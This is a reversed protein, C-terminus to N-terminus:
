IRAGALSKPASSELESVPEAGKAVAHHTKKWEDFTPPLNTLLRATDEGCGKARMCDALVDRTSRVFSVSTWGGRAQSRRKYLIWQLGDAGLAWDGSTAFIRETM